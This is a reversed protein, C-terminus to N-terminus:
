CTIEEGRFDEEQQEEKDLFDEVEEATGKKVVAWGRSPDIVTFAEESVTVIFRAM